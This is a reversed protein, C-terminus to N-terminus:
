RERIDNTRYVCASEREPYDHRRRRIRRSVRMVVVVVLELVNMSFIVQIGVWLVIYIKFLYKASFDHYNAVSQRLLEREIYKIAKTKGGGGGRRFDSRYSNLSIQRDM